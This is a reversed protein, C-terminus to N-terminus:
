IPMGTCHFSFPFLVNKGKQRQFRIQYECKSISYAHGLHLYGNMYPYPFTCYYKSAQKEEFTQNEYGPTANAAFIKDEYNARAQVKEIARLHEFRAGGQKQEEKTNIQEKTEVM